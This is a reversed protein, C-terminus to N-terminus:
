ELVALGFELIERYSQDALNPEKHLFQPRRTQCIGGNKEKKRYPTKFYILYVRLILFLDLLM